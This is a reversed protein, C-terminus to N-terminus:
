FKLFLNELIEFIEEPTELVKFGGNNHTVCGVITIVRGKQEGGYMGTETETSIDGIMQPNIYVKERHRTTLKIFKMKM